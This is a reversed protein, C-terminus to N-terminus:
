DGLATSRVFVETPKLLREFVGLNIILELPSTLVAIWAGQAHSRWFLNEVPAGELELDGSVLRFKLSGDSSERQRGLRPILGASSSLTSASYLFGALAQVKAKRGVLNNLVREVDRRKHSPSEGKRFAGTLIEIRVEDSSTDDMPGTDVTVWRLKRGADRYRAFLTAKEFRKDLESPAFWVRIELQVCSSGEFTPLKIKM